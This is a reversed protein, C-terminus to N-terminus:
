RFDSFKLHVFQYNKKDFWQNGSPSWLCIVCVSQILMQAYGLGDIPQPMFPLLFLGGIVMLTYTWRIFNSRRMIGLIIGFMILFTFGITMWFIQIGVGDIEGYLQYSSSVKMIGIVLVAILCMLAMKITIIVNSM